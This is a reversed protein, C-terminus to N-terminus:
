LKHYVRLRLIIDNKHFDEEKTVKSYNYGILFAAKWSSSFVYGIGPTIRIKDNFQQVDILNWYLYLSVPMYLGKGFGVVDGQFKFTLTAKYAM